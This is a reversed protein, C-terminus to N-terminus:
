AVHRLADIPNMQAARRAPYIGFVLGVLMSIGFAVPISWPLVIPEVSQVTAPLSKMVEPLAKNVMWRVSDVFPGCAFGGVIGTVGGAISLLVTEIV